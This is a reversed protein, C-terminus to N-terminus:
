SFNQRSFAPCGGRRRAASRGAAGCGPRPARAARGGRRLRHHHSRRAHRRPAAPAGRVTATVNKKQPQQNPLLVCCVEVPTYVHPKKIKDLIKCKLWWLFMHHVISIVNKNTRANIVQIQQAWPGKKLCKALDQGTSSSKLKSRAQLSGLRPGRMAAVTASSLPAFSLPPCLHVSPFRASNRIQCSIILLVPSIGGRNSSSMWCINTQPQTCTSRQQLHSFNARECRWCVKRPPM